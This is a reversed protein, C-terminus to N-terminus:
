RVGAARGRGGAAEGPSNGATVLGSGDAGAIAAANSAYEAEATVCRRSGDAAVATVRLQQRGGLALTRQSPEVELSAVTPATSGDANAGEALWRLLRRYPLSGEDVKRGGGHPVRGSAKLLLLSNEPSAPFVRRGRSATVIAAHDAAPDFGFVSLKFGQQGEAKGHCGGGNCSAKTLLPIVEQDFSVPRPSRLGGVEVPVVTTAGAARVRVATRGEARPTVMGASDVAAVAPDTVEYAADRTSDWAGGAARVTVLLQQSAEPSDLRVSAPTVVVDARAAACAATLVLLAASTAKTM